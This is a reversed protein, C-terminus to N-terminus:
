AAGKKDGVPYLSDRTKEIGRIANDLVGRLDSPLNGNIKDMYNRVGWESPPRDPDFGMESIIGRIRDYHEMQKQLRLNEDATERVIKGIQGRVMYGINRGDKKEKLWNRWYALRDDPQDHRREIRARWMLVYRFVDEPIQVDRVPAKKKVYVRSGTSTVYMLGVEAPLEAPEIVGLPCVFYLENCCQLYGPWKDDKLFDARRVKVEYAKVSPRAWSRPMVWADMRLHSNQSSGDKCEEVFVDGSHREKLLGVIDGATITM